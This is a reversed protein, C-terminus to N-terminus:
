RNVEKDKCWLFIEEKPEDETLFFRVDRKLADAITVLESMKVRKGAEIERIRKFRLGTEDSMREIHWGRERRAWRLKEHLKM